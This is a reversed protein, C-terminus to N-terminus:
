VWGAAPGLSRQRWKREEAGACRPQGPPQALATGAPGAGRLAPQPRQGSACACGRRGEVGRLGGGAGPKRRGAGLGSRAATGVARHCGRGEGRSGGHRRWAATMHPAPLPRPPPVRPFTTISEKKKKKKQTGEAWSLHAPPAMCFQPCLRLQAVGASCGRRREARRLKKLSFDMPERPSLLLIDMTRGATLRIFSPASARHAPGQRAPNPHLQLWSGHAAQQACRQGRERGPGEKATVGGLLEQECTCEMRRNRDSERRLLKQGRQVKQKIILISIAWM